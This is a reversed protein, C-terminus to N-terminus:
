IKGEFFKFYVMAVVIIGALLIWWQRTLDVQVLKMAQMAMSVALILLWVLIAWFLAKKWWINNFMARSRVHTGAQPMEEVAGEGQAYDENEGTQEEMSVDDNYEEGDVGSDASDDVSDDFQEEPEIVQRRKSYRSKRSDIPEQPSDDEIYRNQPGTREKEAQVYVPKEVIFTKVRVTEKKPEPLIDKFREFFGKEFERIGKPTDKVAFKARKVVRKQKKKAM